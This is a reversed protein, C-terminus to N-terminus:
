ERRGRGPTRRGIAGAGGQRRGLRSIVKPLTAAPTCVVALDPTEPLDGVRSVCPQAFVTDYGKPNVAWLTGPFGAEQLNRIVIGGISHPKESAGIVAITRPEFFHRLFRTSM